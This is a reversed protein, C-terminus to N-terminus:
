VTSTALVSLPLSKSDFLKSFASLQRKPPLNIFPRLRREPMSINSTKMYELIKPHLKLLNIIQTMRARSVIKRQEKFFQNRSLCHRERLATQYLLALQVAESVTQNPKEPPFLDKINIASKFYQSRDLNKNFYFLTNLFKNGRRFANPNESCLPLM